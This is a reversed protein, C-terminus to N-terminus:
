EVSYNPNMVLVRERRSRLLFEGKPEEDGQAWISCNLLQRLAPLGKSLPSASSLLCAAPQVRVCMYIATSHAPRIAHVLLLLHRVFM